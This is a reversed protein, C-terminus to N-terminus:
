FRYKTKTFFKVKSHDPRSFDDWCRIKIVNYVLLDPFTLSLKVAKLSIKKLM